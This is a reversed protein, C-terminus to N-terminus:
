NKPPFNYPIWEPLNTLEKKMSESIPIGWKEFFPAINRGAVKSFTGAWMDRKQEDRKLNKGEPDVAAMAQYERFFKKFTEWGFAEQLQRFMILGLFPNAKWKEYDAGEQFYKKMMKMTEENSVGHHADDRGGMLRDFMYLSFFNCSVETTGGFVWDLNQMNHGIEHFFGWNAGGKSGTMLRMPNTIVDASLLNRSPSHHIMIPYGSHMFGGGIQEDIVMRQPRYFPQPLQALDMEGSVILAWLQMVYSPDTVQQLISDPLTLIVKDSALEGWPAKNDKLQEKWQEPTTLGEQYLPAAVAHSIKIDGSWSDSKVPASIYILGGFPSALRTTATKLEQEKVIAPMRRWDEKGAMWFNLNDSHNGIQLQIGKGLLEKPLTVEIYEGAAAYLGTSYLTPRWPQSYQLRSVIPVLADNIRTHSIKVTRTIMKAGEKVKGPFVEASPHAKIQKYDTLQLQKSSWEFVQKRFETEKVSLPKEPTILINEPSPGSQAYTAFAALLM